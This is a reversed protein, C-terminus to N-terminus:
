FSAMPAKLYANEEKVQSRMGQKGLRLLLNAFILCCFPLFM